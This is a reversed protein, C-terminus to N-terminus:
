CTWQRPSSTSLLRYVQEKFSSELYFKTNVQSTPPVSVNLYSVADSDLYTQTCYVQTRLLIMNLTTATSHMVSTLPAIADQVGVDTM